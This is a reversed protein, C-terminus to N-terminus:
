IVIDFVLALRALTAHTVERSNRTLVATPINRRQLLEVLEGAGPIMRAREVGNLEHRSLIKRCIVARQPPLAAIAELIPQGTPLQMERRMAEFDLASDVLTGDLDFIVGQIM